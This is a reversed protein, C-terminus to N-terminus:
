WRLANRAEDDTARYISLGSGEGERTSRGEVDSRRALLFLLVVDTPIWWGWRVGSGGDCLLRSPLCVGLKGVGGECLVRLCLIYGRWWRACEVDM